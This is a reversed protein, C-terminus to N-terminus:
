NEGEKKHKAREHSMRGAKNKAKFGCYKCVTEDSEKEKKEKKRKDVLKQAKLKSKHYTMSTLKLYEEAAKRDNVDIVM